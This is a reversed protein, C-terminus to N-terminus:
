KEELEAPNNELIVKNAKKLFTDYIKFQYEVDKNVSKIHREIDKDADERIQTKQSNAYKTLFKAYEIKHKKLLLNIWEDQFSNNKEQTVQEFFNFHLKTPYSDLISFNTNSPSIAIVETINDKNQMLNTYMIISDLDLDQESIQRINDSKDIILGDWKIEPYTIRIFEKIDEITYYRM